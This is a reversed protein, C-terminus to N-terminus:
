EFSEPVSLQLLRHLACMEDYFARCSECHALHEHLTRTEEPTLLGGAALTCLERFPDHPNHM